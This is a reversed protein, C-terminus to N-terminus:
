YVVVIICDVVGYTLQRPDGMVGQGCGCAGNSDVALHIVFDAGYM